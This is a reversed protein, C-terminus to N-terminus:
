EEGGNGNERSSVPNDPHKRDWAEILEQRHADLFTHVQDDIERWTGGPPSMFSWEQLTIRWVRERCILTVHPPELRERDYVKVKWGQNRLKVPLRVPDAM